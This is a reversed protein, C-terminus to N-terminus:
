FGGHEWIDSESVDFMRAAESVADAKSMGGLILIIIKAIIVAWNKMKSM